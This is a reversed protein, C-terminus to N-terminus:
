KRQNWVDKLVSILVYGLTGICLALISVWMAPNSLLSLLPNM